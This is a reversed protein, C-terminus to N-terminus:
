ATTNTCGTFTTRGGPHRATATRASRLLLDGGPPLPRSKRWSLARGVTPRGKGLLCVQVSDATQRLKCEIPSRCHSARSHMLKRLSGRQVVSQLSAEVREVRDQSAEYGVIQESRDAKGVAVLAVLFRPRHPRRPRHSRRSRRPRHSRHPPRPRRPHRPRHPCSNLSPLSPSSPLSASSPSSFSSPLSPSSGSRPSSPSSFSSPSSPSSSLAKSEPSSPL